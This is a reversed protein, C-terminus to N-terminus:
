VTLEPFRRHFEGLGRFAFDAQVGCAALDHVKNFQSSVFITRLGANKAGKIDELPSDGVYVTESADVHLRRLAEEFVLKHPKRWGLDGSVIIANFFRSIHLKRLSSHVVPAYTFNSVLGLKCNESAQQLLKEAFPRLVLSDVYDQFFVNLAAKLHANNQCVQFGLNCLTESVWVANTVERLEGYRVLRYKEHAKAYAALFEDKDTEFGEDALASHLKSMSASLHYNRANVLTGIFDLLVAKVQTM